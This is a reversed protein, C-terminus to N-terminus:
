EKGGRKFGKPLKLTIHESLEELVPVIGLTAKTLTLMAINVPIGDRTSISSALAYLALSAEIHFNDPDDSCCECQGSEHNIKIELM